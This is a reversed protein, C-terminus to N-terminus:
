DESTETTDTESETAAADTKGETTSSRSVPRAFADYFSASEMERCLRVVEAWEDERLIESLTPFEHEQKRKKEEAQAALEEATPVHPPARDVLKFVCCDDVCYEDAKGSWPLVDWMDPSDWMKKASVSLKSTTVDLGHSMHIAMRIAELSNSDAEALKLDDYAVEKLLAAELRTKLEEEDPEKAQPAEEHSEPYLVSFPTLPDTTTPVRISPFSSPFATRLTMFVDLPVVVAAPADDPLELHHLAFWFGATLRARPMSVSSHAAAYLRAKVRALLDDWSSETM